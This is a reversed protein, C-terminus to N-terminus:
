WTSFSTEGPILLIYFRIFSPSILNTFGGVYSYELALQEQARRRDLVVPGERAHRLVLGPPVHAGERQVDDHRHRRFRRLHHSQM